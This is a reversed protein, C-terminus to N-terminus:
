RCIVSRRTRQTLRQKCSTWRLAPTGGLRWSDNPHKRRSDDKTARPLAAFFNGPAPPSRAIRVPNWPSARDPTLGPPPSCAAARRPPFKPRTGRVRLRHGARRRGRAPPGPGPRPPTHELKLPACRLPDLPVRIHRAHPPPYLCLLRGVQIQGRREQVMSPFHACNLARQRGACLPSESESLLMAPWHSPGPPHYQGLPSSTVLM